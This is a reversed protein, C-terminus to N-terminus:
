SDRATHSFVHCDTADASVKLVVDDAGECMALIMFGTVFVCTAVLINKGVMGAIIDSLTAYTSLSLM